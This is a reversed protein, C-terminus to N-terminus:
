KQNSHKLTYNPIIKRNLEDIKENTNVILSNPQVYKVSPLSSM